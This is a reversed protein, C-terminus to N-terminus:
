SNILRDLAAAFDHSDESSYNSRSKHTIGGSRLAKMLEAEEARSKLERASWIRGRDNIVIVGKEILRIGLIYDRTLAIDDKRSNDAILNDVEGSGHRVLQMVAGQESVGPIVRDAVVVVQLEQRGHARLAIEMAKQPCSDGDIWLKM